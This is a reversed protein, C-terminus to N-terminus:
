GNPSAAENSTALKMRLANCEESAQKAERLFLLAASPMRDQAQLATAYAAVGEDSCQPVLLGASFRAAFYPDVDMGFSSLAELVEPLLEGSLASQNAPLLANMAMRQKALGSAHGPQSAVALWQRKTALDPLSSEVAIAMKEGYDSSDRERQGALRRAVDESGHRALIRVLRWRLDDSVAMEPVALEGDLIGRIKGLGDNSAAIALFYDFWLRQVDSGPQEDLQDWAQAELGPRVKSLLAESQPGLRDLLSLTATVSETVQTTLRLNDSGALLSRALAFYDSFPMDGRAATDAVAQFLMSQAFPDDSLDLLHELIVGLESPSLEVAFYGWDEHNPWVLHPCPIAEPLSAETREGDFRAELVSTRQLLGRDDLSYFAIRSAQSRADPGVSNARQLLKLAALQGDECQHETSVVNFGPQDLWESSWRTLDESAAEGISQIFDELETNGYAHRKLYASVGQRYHEAGVRFALQKLVSSGKQYTIADFVTFFEDTSAITMEIPHTTVRSDKWYAAQKSSVFFRHWYDGFDTADAMAISAMQTAFSENLWLGNWWHHTVLDGFWMHAMEHLIVSARGEREAFSSAQRQVYQEGFTVAAVNEMAGIQFDPVILQDYKGFPYPVDYYREYHDFGRRSIDFWEEVEVHEALSQRAMLRLPIDGASSEWVRYPGAHLSFV